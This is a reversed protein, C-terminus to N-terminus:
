DQRESAATQPRALSRVFRGRRGALNFGLKKYLRAAGPNNENVDLWAEKSGAQYFRRLAEALLAAGLGRGRWAPLVGMQTVWGTACATFGVPQDGALALLSAEPFFEDDESVWAVWESMSWGPFGPRERFAGQYALFFLAAREATWTELRISAPLAVPPLADELSRRMVWEVFQKEFGQRTFLGEAAPTLFESALRLTYAQGVPCAQLVGPAQAAGWALLGSGLGRDRWAPHVMGSIALSCPATPGVPQVAVTAILHGGTDWAGVARGPAQPLSRALLFDAEAALPLGGDAALCAQALALLAPLDSDRLSCWALGPLRKLGPDQVVSPNDTHSNM